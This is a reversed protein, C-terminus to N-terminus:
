SRTALVIAVAVVIWAALIAVIIDLLHFPEEEADQMPQFCVPEVKRPPLPEARAAAQELSALYRRAAPRPEPPLTWTPPSYPKLAPQPM